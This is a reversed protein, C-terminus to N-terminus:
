KIWLRVRYTYVTNTIHEVEYSADYIRDMHAADGIMANIVQENYQHPRVFLDVSPYHQVPRPGDRQFGQVAKVFRDWQPDREKGALPRSRDLVLPRPPPFLATAERMVSMTAEPIFPQPVIALNDKCQLMDTFLAGRLPLTGSGGGHTGDGSRPSPVTGFVFGGVNIGREFWEGSIGFLNAYYFPSPGQEEHPIEKKIGAVSHMNMGIYRRHDLIPDHYGIPDIRGTGECFLFPLGVASATPGTPTFEASAANVPAVAPQMRQLLRQGGNTKELGRAVVENPVMIGYMHAGWGEQDGIKAGHVVSLTMFYTYHNAALSQMEMLPAGLAKYRPHEEPFPTAIFAKLTAYIGYAGDECDGSLMSLISSFEDTGVHNREFRGGGMGSPNARRNTTEVADGIYDFSQVAYCVIQAMTRAKEKADFDHWATLPLHRRAMVREYANYFYEDNAHPTEVIAFAAVPLFTQGTSEIGVQSLDFPARIRETNHLLDPLASELEMCAKIYNSVVAEAAAPDSRILCSSVASGNGLGGGLEVKTVRLNITGKKVPELGSVVVTRMVLDHAHDYSGASAESIIDSLYAHSTGVNVYCAYGNDNRHVAYSALGIAATSPIGSHERRLTGILTGKYVKAAGVADEDLKINVVGGTEISRDCHNSFFMQLVPQSEIRKDALDCETYRVEYHLKIARTPDSLPKLKDM